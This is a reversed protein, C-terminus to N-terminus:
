KQVPRVPYGVAKWNREHQSSVGTSTVGLGLFYGKFINTSRTTATWYYGNSELHNLTANNISRFGTIPYYAVVDDVMYIRASESVTFNSLDFHKWTGHVPVAFQWPSPDFISKDVGINTAAYDNWLASNDVSQSTWNEEGVDYFTTPNRVSEAFSVQSGSTSPHNQQKYTGDSQLYKGAKGPFPDKRGFQYYLIGKAAKANGQGILDASQAGICRDLILKKAYAGNTGWLPSTEDKIDKYHHLDGKIVDISYAYNAKEPIGTPVGSMDFKFYPTYDTLWIHWSWLIEDGAKTGDSDADYKVAILMNGWNDFTPPLGVSLHTYDDDSSIVGRYKSIIVRDNPKSSIGFPINDCDYWLVEPYWSDDEFIKDIEDETMLDDPDPNYRADTWFKKIKAKIPIETYSDLNDKVNPAIMYCNSKNVEGLETIQYQYVRKDAKPNSAGNFHLNYIYHTNANINFDNILNGGLYFRYNRGDRIIVSGLSGVDEKKGKKVTKLNFYTANEPANVPKTYTYKSDNVGRRNVPMYYTFTHTGEEWNLPFNSEVSNFETVVTTLKTEKEELAAFYDLRTRCSHMSGTLFDLGSNDQTINISIKAYNRYIQCPELYPNTCDFDQTKEGSFISYYTSGSKAFVGRSKLIDMKKDIIDSLTTTGNVITFLNKDFSNVLYVFRFKGSVNPLVIMRNIEESYDDIYGSAEITKHEDSTVQFWWVNKIEDSYPQTDAKTVMAKTAEETGAFFSEVELNLEVKVGDTNSDTNPDILDIQDNNCSLAFLCASIYVIIRKM